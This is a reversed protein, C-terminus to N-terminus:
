RRAGASGNGVGSTARGAMGGGSASFGGRGAGGRGNNLFYGTHTMYGTQQGTVPIANPDLSYQAYASQNAQGQLGAIAAQNQLQPRVLGYLNTGASGSSRLLNLYPSVGPRAAPGIQQGGPVFPPQATAPQALVALLFASALWTLVKMIDETHFFVQVSLM